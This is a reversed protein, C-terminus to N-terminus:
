RKVLLLAAVNQELPVALEMLQRRMGVELRDGFAKRIVPDGSRTLAAALTNAFTARFFGARAAALAELRGERKYQAWAGDAIQSFTCDELTLGAFKGNAAFPARTEEPTRLYSPVLMRGREEESIAGEFVMSALVLNACDFLAILPNWGAEDLSPLVIILRGGPRLEHSRQSLFTEWDVRAQEAFAARLAGSSRAILIHGPVPEPVRSLWVAAFSSWGLDAYSPPLVSRYFTRGVASPFVNADDSVYSGPGNEVVDFLSSFDNAPLDTHVVMIPRKPGLRKRLVGVAARMPSLSNRGESSGYDAIVVPRGEDSVPIQGAAKELLPLAIAAGAAQTASNANYVGHGAMVVHHGQPSSTM